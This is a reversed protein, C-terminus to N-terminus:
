AFIDEIKATVNLNQTRQTPKGRLHEIVRWSTDTALKEDASTIAKKITKLAPNEMKELKQQIKAQIDPRNEIRKVIRNAKTRAYAPNRNYTEPELIKIAKAPSGTQALVEGFIVDKKAQIKRAKM